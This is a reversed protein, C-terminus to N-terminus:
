NSKCAKIASKEDSFDGPINIYRHLKACYFNPKDPDDKKSFSCKKFCDFVNQNCPNCKTSGKFWSGATCKNDDFCEDHNACCELRCPTELFSPINDCGASDLGFPDTFRIPNNFTYAYVNIGGEFAIPDKSIFRGEMPDYYRARYYHLGTEKDWERGTYTYSNIIGTAAKAM